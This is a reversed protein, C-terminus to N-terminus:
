LKADDGKLIVTIPGGDGGTHKMTESWGMRAKTWWIAATVNGGTAQKYLSEAIKSNAKIAGTDLEVRYHKELTPKSIGVVLGIDTQPIGYGAMAEVTKRMDDTPKHPPRGTKRKAKRPKKSPKAM